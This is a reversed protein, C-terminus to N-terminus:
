AGASHGHWLRSRMRHVVALRFAMRLAAVGFTPSNRSGGDPTSHTFSAM